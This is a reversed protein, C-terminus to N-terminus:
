GHEEWQLYSRFREMFALYEAIQAELKAITNISLLLSRYRSIIRVAWIHNMSCSTSVMWSLFLASLHSLVEM